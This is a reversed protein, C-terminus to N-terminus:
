KDLGQFRTTFKTLWILGIELLAAILVYFYFVLYRSYDGEGVM